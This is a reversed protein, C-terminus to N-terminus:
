IEMELAGPSNEEDMDIHENAAHNSQGQKNINHDRIVHFVTAGCQKGHVLPSPM